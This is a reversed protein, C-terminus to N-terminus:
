KKKPKKRREVDEKVDEEEEKHKLSLTKNKRMKPVLEQYRTLIANDEKSLSASDIYKFQFTTDTMLRYWFYMPNEGSDYYHNYIGMPGEEYDCYIEFTNSSTWNLRINDYSDYLKVAGTTERFNLFMYHWLNSTIVVKGNGTQQLNFHLANELSSSNCYIWKENDDVQLSRNLSTNYLIGYFSKGSEYQTRTLINYNIGLKNIKEFDAKEQSVEM